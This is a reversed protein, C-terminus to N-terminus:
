PELCRRTTPRDMRASPTAASNVPRNPWTELAKRITPTPTSSTKRPTDTSPRVIASGSLRAIPAGSGRMLPTVPVRARSFVMRLGLRVAALADASIIPTPRIANMEIKAEEALADILAVMSRVNAPSKTILEPAPDDPPPTAGASAWRSFASGCTAAAVPSRVPDMSIRPWGTMIAATSGRVAPWIKLTLGTCPDIPARPASPM